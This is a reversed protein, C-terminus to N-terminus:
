TQAYADRMGVKMFAKIRLNLSSHIRREFDDSSNSRASAIHFHGRGHIRRSEDQSCLRKGVVAVSYM